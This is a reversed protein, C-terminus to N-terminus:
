HIPPSQQLESQSYADPGLSRPVGLRTHHSYSALLEQKKIVLASAHERENPGVDTTSTQKAAWIHSTVESEITM